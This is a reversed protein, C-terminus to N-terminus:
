ASVDKKSEDELLRLAETQEPKDAVLAAGVLDIVTTNISYQIWGTLSSFCHIANKTHTWLGRQLANAAEDGYRVECVYNGNADTFRYVPHKRGSGATVLTISTVSDMARGADFIMINARMKKEDYILPLVNIQRFDAFAPSRLIDRIKSTDSIRNPQTSLLKFMSSTKNTSLQLPGDGYAKLSIPLETGEPTKVSIDEEHAKARYMDKGVHRASYGPVFLQIFEAMAVEALDGHTKNGIMRMSFVNSLTRQILDPRAEFFTKLDQVFKVYPNVLSAM